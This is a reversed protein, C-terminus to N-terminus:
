QVAKDIKGKAFQTVRLLIRQFISERFIEPLNQQLVEQWGSEWVFFLPYVGAKEYFPTLANAATIGAQKDVLGGHFHLVLPQTKNQKLTNFIQSLDAASTGYDADFRGDKLVICHGKDLGNM